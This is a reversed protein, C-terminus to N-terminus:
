WRLGAGAGMGGDPLIAPGLWVPGTFLPRLPTPANAILVIMASFLSAGAALQLPEAENSSINRLLLRERQEIPGAVRPNTYDIGHFRLIARWVRENDQALKTPVPEFLTSGNPATLVLACTLMTVCLM